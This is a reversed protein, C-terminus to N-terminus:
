FLDRSLIEHLFYETKSFFKFGNGGLLIIWFHVGFGAVGRFREDAEIFVTTDIGM